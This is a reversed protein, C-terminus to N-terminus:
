DITGGRKEKEGKYVFLYSKFFFIFFVFVSPKKEERHIQTTVPNNKNRYMKEEWQLFITM